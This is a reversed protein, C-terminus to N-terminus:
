AVSRSALVLDALEALTEVAFEPEPLDAPFQARQANMWVARLGAARAGEVDIRPDDGLYWTQAPATQLAATLAAFARADPKQVGIEASALVTGEFSARRAKRTQLPNWGNSLIAMRVGRARLTAFAAKAGPRAVVFEDAMALAMARFRAAYAARDAAIGRERVFNEVAADITFEGRRQRALLDDIRVIEDELSGLPHGGAATVEELLRLLAVRELKNDIAITHDIDFGVAVPADLTM